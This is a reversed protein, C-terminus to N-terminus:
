RGLAVENLFFAILEQAPQRVYQALWLRLRIGLYTTYGTTASVIKGDRDLFFLAPVAKVGYTRSIVGDPDLVVPVKFDHANMYALVEASHGSQLAVTVMPVESTLRSVSGQMLRCIGCWSGWVYIFAPKQLSQIGSFQEGTVMFGQIPPADGTALGSSRFSQIAIVVMLVLLWSFLSRGKSSHSMDCFAEVVGWWPGQAM